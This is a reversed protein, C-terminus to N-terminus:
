IDEPPPSIRDIHQSQSSPMVSNRDVQQVRSEQVPLCEGRSIRYMKPGFMLATVLFCQLFVIACQVFYMADSNSQFLFLLPLGLYHLCVLTSLFHSRLITACCLECQTVHTTGFLMKGIALVQFMSVICASIYKGEAFDSPIKRTKFSLRLAYILCVIHFVIMSLFFAAGNDSRCIGVSKMYFNTQDVQLVDRQWTLPSVLQWVLLLLTHLGVVGIMIFAVDRPRVKRRRFSDASVFVMQIRCLKALLASFTVTFGIGWLWPAAMSNNM